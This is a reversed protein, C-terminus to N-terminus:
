EEKKGRKLYEEYYVEEIEEVNKLVRRLVEIEERMGKLVSVLGEDDLGGSVEVECLNDLGLMDGMDWSKNEDIELWNVVRYYVNKMMEVSEEMSVDFMSVKKWM